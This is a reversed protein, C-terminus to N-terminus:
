EVVGTRRCVMAATGVGALALVVDAAVVAVAM